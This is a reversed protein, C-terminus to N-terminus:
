KKNRGYSDLILRAKETENDIQKLKEDRKKLKDRFTKANAKRKEIIKRNHERNEKNIKRREDWRAFKSCSKNYIGLAVLLTAIIAIASLNM